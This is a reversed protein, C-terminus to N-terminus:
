GISIDEFTWDEPLQTGYYELSERSMWSAGTTPDIEARPDKFLRGAVKPQWMWWDDARDPNDIVYLDPYGFMWGLGYQYGPTRYRADIEIFSLNVCGGFMEDYVSRGYTSHPILEAILQPATQLSTCGQYMGIYCGSALTTASISGPDALNYCAYYMQYYCNDACQTAPLIAGQALNHCNSFIGSYCGEALTTIPMLPVNNLNHCQTLLLTYDSKFTNTGLTKPGRIMYKNNNLMRNFRGDAQNENINQGNGDHDVYLYTEWNSYYSARDSWHSNNSPDSLIPFVINYSDLVNCFEFPYRLYNDNLINSNLFNIGYVLSLLNGSIRCLKDAVPYDSYTNQEKTGTFIRVHKIINTANNVTYQWPAVCRIEMKDTANMDAVKVVVGAPSDEDIKRIEKSQWPGNNISYELTYSIATHYIWRTAANQHHPYLIVSAYVACDDVATITFYEQSYDTEDEEDKFKWKCIIKEANNFVFKYNPIRSILTQHYDEDVSYWGDFELIDTYYNNAVLLVTSGEDILYETQKIGADTRYDDTIETGYMIRNDANVLISSNFPASNEIILSHQPTIPTIHALLQANDNVTFTYPNETIIYGTATTWYVFKYGTYPTATVSIERGSAYSGSGTTTGFGLSDQDLGAFVNYYITPKNELQAYFTINGYLKYEFYHDETYLVYENNQLTYWGTFMMAAGGAQEVIDIPVDSGEQYTGGGILEFGSINNPMTQLTVTYEPTPTEEAVFVATIDIDENVTITLPNSSVYENDFDWWKFVYGTNPIAEVQISSGEPYYGSGITTGWESENVHLTVEYMNPIDDGDNYVTWGIPVGNVSDIDYTANPHKIFTGTPAVNRVWNNLSNSERQTAHINIYNLSTCGSFMYAYAFNPIYDAPLYPAYTMSTCGSFMYRYCTNALTTAPLAPPQVLATCGSFILEYCNNALTTAPLAPPITLADCGRFMSNYCHEALTTAPLVPATTLSSCGRFMHAYCTGALTTAPLVPATTLSSCGNFMYVYCGQALNTAPLEPAAILERCQEFTEDYAGISVFDPLILKSADVIKTQRFLQYFCFEPISNKTLATDYDLLTMINGSVNCNKSTSFNIGDLTTNNYGRILIKNGNNISPISITEDSEEGAHYLLQIASWTYGNDLSYYLNYNQENIDDHNYYGRTISLVFNDELSTICFCDEYLANITRKDLYNFNLTAQPM